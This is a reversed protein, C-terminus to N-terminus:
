LIGGNKEGKNQRVGKLFSIIPPRPGAPPFRAVLKTAYIDQNRFIVLHWARKALKGEGGRVM